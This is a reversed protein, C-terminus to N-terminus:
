ENVAERRAFVVTQPHDYVVFSEDLRGLPLLARPWCAEPLSFDLGVTPNDHLAL